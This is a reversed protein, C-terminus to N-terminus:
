LIRYYKLSLIVTKRSFLLVRLNGMGPVVSNEKRNNALMAIKSEMAKHISNAPVKQEFAGASGSLVTGTGLVGQMLESSGNGQLGTLGIIQGRRIELNVASDM